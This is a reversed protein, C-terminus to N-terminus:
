AVKLDKFGQKRMKKYKRIGKDSIEKHPCPNVVGFADVDFESLIYGVLLERTREKGIRAGNEKMDPHVESVWRDLVDPTVVDNQEMMLAVRDYAFSNLVNKIAQSM